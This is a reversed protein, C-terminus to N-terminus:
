QKDEGPKPQVSTAPPQPEGCRAMFLRKVASRKVPLDVPRDTLSSLMMANAVELSRLGEVGDCSPTRGERVADTFERLVAAHTGETADLATQVEACKPYAYVHSRDTDAFDRLPKEPRFLHLANGELRLAGRDGVIELRSEPPAQVTNFHVLGQAGGPFDLLASAMDEVEIQHIRTRTWATVRRPLGVLYVLLDLYPPAQHALVGGGAGAWTGRWPAAEYFYRTKFSTHVLTIRYLDGLQGEQIM